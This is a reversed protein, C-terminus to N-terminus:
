NFLRNSDQRIQEFLTLLRISTKIGRIGYHREIESLVWRDWADYCENLTADKPLTGEPQGSFSFDSLSSDDTLLCKDFDMGLVRTFFVRGEAAYDDIFDQDCIHITPSM